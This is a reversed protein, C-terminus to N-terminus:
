LNGAEGATVRYCPKPSATTKSLNRSRYAVWCECEHLLWLLVWQNVLYSKPQTWVKTQWPSGIKPSYVHIVNRGGGLFTKDCLVPGCQWYFIIIIFFSYWSDDSIVLLKKKLQKQPLHSKFHIIKITAFFFFIAAICSLKLSALVIVIPIGLLPIWRPMNICAKWGM